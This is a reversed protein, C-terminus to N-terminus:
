MEAKAENSSAGRMKGAVSAIYESATTLVATAKPHQAVFMASAIPGQTLITAADRVTSTVTGVPTLVRTQLQDQVYYLGGAFLLQLTLICILLCRDITM